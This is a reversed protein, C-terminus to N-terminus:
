DEVAEATIDLDYVSVEREDERHSGNYNLRIFMTAEIEVNEIVEACASDEDDAEVEDFTGVEDGDVYVTVSYTSAISDVTDWGLADALGNYIGLADEKSMSGSRAESKFWDLAKYELSALLSRNSQQEKILANNLAEAVKADVEGQTFFLQQQEYQPTDM